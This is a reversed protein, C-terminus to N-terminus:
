VAVVRNRGSKKAKYLAEDTEVFINKSSDIEKPNIFKVGISITVYSSIYNNSHPIKLNEVSERVKNAFEVAREEDQYFYLMAFEEGGLRFCYDDPRSMTSRIANAVAKLAEDGAQHGYTDNFQKFFDVDIM